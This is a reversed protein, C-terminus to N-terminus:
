KAPRVPQLFSTTRKGLRSILFGNMTGETIKAGVNPIFAPIQKAAEGLYESTESWLTDAVAETTEQLLGGLYIQLISRALITATQGTAPRLGYLFTLDKILAVCAYLVIAKDIVAIPALATGLGVKRAYDNARSKAAHDLISQFRLRFASLWEDPPMPEDSTLLFQKAQALDEYERETLGIVVLRRRANDDLSYKELYDRLESEAKEAYEAALDQMHRREQLAQIAHLDVSPNRQLRVLALILQWILWGLIGAFLLALMGMIWDFPTPLARIDSFVGATQSVLILGLVSALTGGGWLLGRRVGGPLEFNAGTAELQKLSKEFRQRLEEDERRRSENIEEDSLERAGQVSSRPIGLRDDGERLEPSHSTTTKTDM